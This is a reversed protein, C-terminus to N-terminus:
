ESRRLRRCIAGIANGVAALVLMVAMFGVVAALPGWAPATVWAWSWDIHNTLKLGVFLILLAGLIGIGGRERVIREEYSM